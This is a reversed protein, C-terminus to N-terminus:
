GIRLSVQWGMAELEEISYVPADYGLIQVMYFDSRRVTVSFTFTCAEDVVLGESLEGVGVIEGSGSNITVEVSQAIDNYAGDGTCGVGDEFRSGLAFFRGPGLALTGTIEFTTPAATATPEVIATPEPDNAPADALLGAVSATLLDVNANLSAVQTELEAIRTGQDAVQTYLASLTPDSEPETQADTAPTSWAGGLTVLLASILVAMAIWATKRGM